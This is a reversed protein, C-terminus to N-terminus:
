ETIDIEYVDFRDGPKVVTRQKKMYREMDFVNQPDADATYKYNPHKTLDFKDSFFPRVGRLVSFEMECMDNINYGNIRCSLATENLRKGKCDPCECEYVFQAIKKLTNDTQEEIGKMLVLRKFQNYVGELKKDLREGGKTRSGYLLINHEEDTLDKWPVDTRFYEPRRYIKWYYNGQGFAPLLFFGEDYTKDRDILNNMDLDM